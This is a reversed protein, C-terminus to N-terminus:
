KTTKSYQFSDIKLITVADADNNWVQRDLNWYFVHIQDGAKDVFSNNSGNKTYLIVYDGLKIEKSPFWFVHRNLDSVKGEATYTMDLIVYGILNLDKKAKLVLREQELDTIDYVGLIDFDNLM